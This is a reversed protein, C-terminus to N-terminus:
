NETRLKNIVTFHFSFNYVHVLCYYIKMQNILYLAILLIRM